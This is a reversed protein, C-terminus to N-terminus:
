HLKGLYVTQMVAWKKFPKFRESKFVFLSKNNVLFDKYSIGHYEMKSNSINPKHHANVWSYRLKQDFKHNSYGPSSIEFRVCQDNSYLNFSGDKRSFTNQGISWDENWARIVAGEIPKGTILDRVCGKILYNNYGLMNEYNNMCPCSKKRKVYSAKLIEKVILKVTGRITYNGIKTITNGQHNLVGAFQAEFHANPIEQFEWWGLGMGQCGLVRDLVEKYFLAQEDYSISDGDSPLATEGIMWPKQAYNSYWFIENFVRLPNYTHFAIFDVPLMSPDWEFVEIPESFGITFLQNPANEDFVRRWNRVIKVVENKPRLVPNENSDVKTDFYLPENFFDYAFVAPRNSFSKLVSRTFNLLAGDQYPPKLLIMIRLQENEAIKLFAEIAGILKKCDRDLYIKSSDSPYYFGQHDSHIRDMVLRISNFGMEKILRLHGKLQHITGEYDGHEFYNPDEYEKIPTIVIRGDLKRFGVVYNIMVPFFRSNKCKFENNQIYIFDTKSIAKKNTKSTNCGLLAISSFVLLLRIHFKSSM